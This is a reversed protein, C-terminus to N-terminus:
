LRKINEFPQFTVVDGKLATPKLYNEVVLGTPLPGMCRPRGVEGRRRPEGRAVDNGHDPPAVHLSLGSKFAGGPKLTQNHFLIANSEVQVKNQLSSGSKFAGGPKLNQNRFLIVNSEVQVKNEPAQGM